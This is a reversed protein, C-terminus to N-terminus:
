LPEVYLTNNIANYNMHNKHIKLLSLDVRISIYKKPLSHQLSASEQNEANSVRCRLTCNYNRRRNHNKGDLGLVALGVVPLPIVINDQLCRQEFESCLFALIGRNKISFMTRARICIGILMVFIILANELDLKLFTHCFFFSTNKLDSKFFVNKLDSKFLPANM